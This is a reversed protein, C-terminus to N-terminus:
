PVAKTAQIARLWAACLASPGSWAKTDICPKAPDHYVSAEGVIKGTSQIWESVEWSWGELKLTVAADLSTTYHPSLQQQSPWAPQPKYEPMVLSYITEDLKRSGETAAELEAILQDMM